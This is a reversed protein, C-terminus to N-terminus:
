FLCLFAHTQEYIKGEPSFSGGKIHTYPSALALTGSQPNFNLDVRAYPQGHYIQQLRSQLRYLTLNYYVRANPGM